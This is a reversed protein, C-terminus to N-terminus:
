LTRCISVASKSNIGSKAKNGLSLESFGIALNFVMGNRFLAQNKSNLLLSGERFELGTSFGLNKPLKKILDERKEQKLVKVAAHYVSKLPKGPKMAKICEEQIQLLLEYNNSVVKPADVLFTRAINSCYFQYRAGLSVTIIDYKLNANNSQASVRIDYDGGSQVVPYYSSTVNEPPVKLNIKSPDELIADVQASLAEHTTSEEKDIVDELKPIFGHKLVKNSLVASKKLLDLETADKQSLVLALGLNVDVTSIKNSSELYKQWPVVNSSKGEM